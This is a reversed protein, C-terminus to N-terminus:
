DNDVGYYTFAAATNFASPAGPGFDRKRLREALKILKDRHNALVAATLSVQGEAGTVVYDLTVWAPATGTLQEIALAYTRLQFSIKAKDILKDADSINGTKFDRIELGEATMITADIRGSLRLKAEPVELKIPLETTQIRSPHKVERDRFRRITAIALEHATEAQARSDYGRDRWDEDLRRELEDLTPTEGRLIGEYYTEIAGHVAKGFALQPGFPQSIGLVKQLYFDHPSREYRELDGVGIEIWGDAREFPLRTPMEAQLPYFRQLKQLSEETKDRKPSRELQPLEHEFLEQVLPSIAQRQGSTTEAPASLIVEQKARTVAVYMLRRQEHVPPLESEKILEPPVILGSNNGQSSWSRATCNVIYVTAFELGKSAHITLLQIGDPDGLTEAVEIEPPKPFTSLYGILSTDTESSEFDQMHSLLHNLDDFVRKVTLMDEAPRAQLRSALGTEFVLRYGLQSIPTTEAWERWRDLQEVVEMSKVESEDALLRLAEEMTILDRKSREVVTRVEAAKLNLFPGMLVHSIAEDSAQMGVWQMLYWLNILERQEFINITTSIAFPIERRSLEKAYSRLIANSRALVAIDGTAEGDALRQTIAAIVGTQEDGVTRYSTFDVRAKTTQAKLKKDLGLKAELREPDNHRILRYAADLIPQGSRYNQILAVPKAVAFHETFRLINEIDAGRFGYISQDDDGVAFINGTKPVFMRLLADQVPSTDQYEDVLVYRYTEGLRQAINAREQLIQLPIALQDYYDFTSTETKLRDYLEYLNALDRQEAVDAAARAGAESGLGDVFERYMVSTVGANQLRGIYSVIRELFEITDGHLGYYELKIDDLRQRIILMKQTDNILGGRTSRKVLNGYRALLDSGFANFTMVPVSFSEWGILDFLRDSMETSAKDTFTLALIQGPKAQGSQILHAIRRTIVQTKGTGAGAVVLLPGDIHEVASRQQDNLGEFVDM